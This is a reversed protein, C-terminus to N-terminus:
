LGRYTSLRNAGFNWFLAVINATAKALNVSIAPPFMHSYLYADSGLFVLQNIVYGVVYVSFFTLLQQPVPRTQSEPFTWRRNWFFNNLVGISFSGTNAWFKTWGLVFHFINLFSFDIIAGTIGVAAFKLFRTLEKEPVPLRRLLALICWWGWLLISPLPLGSPEGERTGRAEVNDSATCMTM